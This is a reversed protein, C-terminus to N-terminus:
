FAFPNSLVLTEQSPATPCNAQSSTGNAVFSYVTAMPLIIVNEQELNTQIASFSQANAALSRAWTTM